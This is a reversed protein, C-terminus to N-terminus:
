AFMAPSQRSARVLQQLAKIKSAIVHQCTSRLLVSCEHDSYGELVSIVFVFREFLGLQLVDRLAPHLRTRLPGSKPQSASTAGDASPRLMQIANQLIIRRTWATTWQQLAPRLGMCDELSARFCREASREEGTLLLSLLYLQKMDRRFIRCCDENIPSAPTSPGSHNLQM